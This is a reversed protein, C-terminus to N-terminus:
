KSSAAGLKETLLLNDDEEMHHSHASPKRLEKLAAKRKEEITEAKFEPNHDRPPPNKRVFAQAIELMMKSGDKGFILGSCFEGGEYDGSFVAMVDSITFIFAQLAEITSSVREDKSIGAIM